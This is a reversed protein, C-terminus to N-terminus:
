PLCASDKPSVQFGSYADITQLKGTGYPTTMLVSFGWIIITRVSDLVMRYVAGLEKTVSLGAFNFFAISCITGCFQFENSHHFHVSTLDTM